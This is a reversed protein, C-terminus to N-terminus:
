LGASSVTSSGAAMATRTIERSTLELSDAEARLANHDGAAFMWANHIMLEAGQHIVRRDGAMLVVSAASYAAGDIHTTVLGDLETLANYIAVGEHAAGGMSNIRVDLPAGTPVDGLLRRVQGSTIGGFIAGFDDHLLLEYKGDREMLEAPM